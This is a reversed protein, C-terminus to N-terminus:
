KLLCCRNRVSFYTEFPNLADKVSLIDHMSKMLAHLAKRENTSEAHPHEYIINLFDPLLTQMDPTLQVHAETTFPANLARLLRISKRVRNLPQGTVILDYIGEIHSLPFSMPVQEDGTWAAYAQALQSSRFYDEHPQNITDYIVMVQKQCATCYLTPGPGLVLSEAHCLDQRILNLFAM